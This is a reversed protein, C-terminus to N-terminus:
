PIIVVEQAGADSVGINNGAKLAAADFPSSPLINTNGVIHIGNANVGKTTITNGQIAQSALNVFSGFGLRVGHADKGTTAITNETVSLSSLSSTGKGSSIFGTRLGYAEKGATTITSNSVSLNTLSSTGNGSSELYTFLGDAGTGATTITSNSVSLNTLSSTGNGSSDFDTFLGHAFHGTTSIFTENVKLNGLSSTGKGSSDFDTFLGNAVSGATSIFTKNVNLSGLSATGGDSSKLETWLGHASDDTTIITSNSVSLNDLNSNSNKASINTKIGVGKDGATSIFTENMNLSGLSSTGHNMSYLDTYLGHAETGATTITTNSMTLGGLTSNSKNALIATNIGIGKNGVTSISTDSVNLSGLSSDNGIESLIDTYVGHADNGTTSIFTESVNLSGLSSVNIMTRMGHADLGTTTISSNNSVNLSGMTSFDLYTNIGRALKGATSITSNSVNLSDLRSSSFIEPGIGHAADGATNITSGSVHLSDLNANNKELLWIGFSTKGATSVSTDSVTINELSANNLHIALGDADSGSTRLESQEIRVNGSGLQPQVWVASTSDQSTEVAMRQLASNEPMTVAAAYEFKEWGTDYVKNYTVTSPKILPRNVTAYSTQTPHGSFIIESTIIQGPKMTVQEDYVGGVDSSDRNIGNVQGGAEYVFITTNEGANDVAKQIGGQDDGYPHENTGDQSTDAANDKDVFTIKDALTLKTKEGPTGDQVSKVTTKSHKSTRTSVASQVDVERKTLNEQWDSKSSQIRVDRQVMESRMREDLSRHEMSVLGDVFKSWSLDRSFPIQLRAGVFFDSGNLTKDEFIEADLALYPGTKIELRAKLGDVDDGLSNDYSYYGGFLRVEPGIPLPLKFGIEMDWGDMGAEYQEFWKTTTTTTTTRYTTTYNTRTTYDTIIGGYQDYYIGHGEAYPDSYGGTGPRVKATTSSSARTSSTTQSVTEQSQSSYQGIKEKDNDADYYNARFDVYQSLLEVGAGWQNFRNGHASERSDVFVNGGLVLGNTVLRRYGLGLNFENAGENMLSVRPNFFIINQENNLLPLIMDSYGELDEEGFRM